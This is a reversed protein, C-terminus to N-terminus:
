DTTEFTTDYAYHCITIFITKNKKGDHHSNRFVECTHFSFNTIAFIILFRLLRMM